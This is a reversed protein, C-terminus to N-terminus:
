SDPQTINLGNMPLEPAPRSLAEGDEGGTRAERTGTGRSPWPVSRNNYGGGLPLEHEYDCAAVAPAGRSWLLKLITGALSVRDERPTTMSPYLELTFRFYLFGEPFQRARVIDSEKNKRIEVEGFRTQVTKTGPDNSVAGVLSEALLKAVEDPEQETDVYIKCDFENPEAVQL